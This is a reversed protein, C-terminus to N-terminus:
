YTTSSGTSTGTTTSSTITSTTSTGTEADDQMVITINTNAIEFIQNRVPVLDNSAPTITFDVTSGDFSDPMFSTISIYGNSYAVTGATESLVVKDAGSLYYIRFVGNLDDLFCTSYATGTSDTYAFASSTVAGEYTTSPNYIANNFSITYSDATTTSPTIGKKATITTLNSIISTETNDISTSLTSYRFISGFKLLNNTKYTQITDIVSSAVAGSSLTTLRSDYKVTTDFILDVIDPDVVNPTIAVMNYSSVSEKISTIQAASLSTAGTPKASIYVTGYTPTSHDQGGWVSVSDLGSVNGEVIKKYDDTTVARNQTEYTKPANFKISEITERDSGGSAANSVTVSSTGYGGVTGAASFTNAGNVDAGESVLAKLLVINGTTPKRGLIGDGFQVRFQGNTHENLFYVNSTSNVTTIDTAKTYVATNTDASSEQITVTLTDTDTNANPLLFKQETNSTNATYRFTLPTGQTLEVGTAVYSSGNALVTTSGSTCFTYSTGNVTSTFQTYKDITVSAPADSPTISISVNAKAGTSSQPTYGLMSAKSVVSDRLQASDLFSESALMNVYYANYYTNYALIDLMVSIASGGFDHDTFETQSTFYDKLNNKISDFDLEAINLKAIEAM